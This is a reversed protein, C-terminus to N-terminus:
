RTIKRGSRVEITQGSGFVPNLEAAIPCSPRVSSDPRHRCGARDTVEKEKEQTNKKKKKKGRSSNTTFVQQKEVFSSASLNQQAKTAM